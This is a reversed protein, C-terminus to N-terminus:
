SYAFIFVGNNIVIDLKYENMLFNTISREILEPTIAANSIKIERTAVTM